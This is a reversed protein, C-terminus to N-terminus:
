EKEGIVMRDIGQYDKLIRINIFNNKEMFDKVKYAQNHGVEYALTGGKAMFSPALYSILNYFYYGEKEATLALKPEHSKVEVQLEKYESEPIYPPNSVILDFEKYKINEFVNSLVFKVNNAELNKANIQAIDLAEQSIDCALVKLNEIEKALSLAIAGSGTGIDLATKYNKEKALKICEEVLLETEPRPILVSENVNFNRGYFGEYGIIYQIPRKKIAREKLMYRIKNKEENSIERNLNLSILIREIKLVESFIMEVELKPNEINNEKFYNISKNFFDKNEQEFSNKQNEYEEYNINQKKELYAKFDLKYTAMFKLAEKIEDKENGELLKEFNAYLMIRETKLIHSILKEAELRAKDLGRKELYKISFELVEQLKNM